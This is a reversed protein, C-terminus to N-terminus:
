PTVISTWYVSGVFMNTPDTYQVEITVGQHSDEFIKIQGRLWKDYNDQPFFSLLKYTGPSFAQDAAAGGPLSLCAAAMVAAVAALAAANRALAALKPISRMVLRWQTEQAPDSGRMSKHKHWTMM